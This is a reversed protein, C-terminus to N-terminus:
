RERVRLSSLRVGTHEFFFAPELEAIHRRHLRIPWKVKQHRIRRYEGRPLTRM